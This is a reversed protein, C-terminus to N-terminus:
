SSTPKCRRWRSLRPEESQIVYSGEYPQERELQVPDEFFRFAREELRSDYYQHGHHRALARASPAGIKELAKLQGRKVRRALRELAPEPVPDTGM